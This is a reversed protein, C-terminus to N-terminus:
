SPIDWVRLAKSRGQYIGAGRKEREFRGEEMVAGSPAGTRGQHMRVGKEIGGKAM